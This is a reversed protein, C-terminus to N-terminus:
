GRLLLGRAIKVTSAGGADRATGAAQVILKRARRLRTRMAAKIRVTMRAAGAKPAKLTATGIVVPKSGRVKAMRLKRADAARITLTVTCTAARDVQCILAVGKRLALKLSQVATGTLGASLSGKPAPADGGGAGGATTGGGPGAPTDTTGSSTGGGTGAGPDTSGGTSGGGTSGGGGGGGPDTSPPAVIDVGVHEITSGGDADTVRVAADVHGANPYSATATPSSSPQTEFSGNGDLDWSYTLATGEPDSSGSANFTVTQGTQVPNPTATLQVVPAQNAVALQVTRTTTLGNGDTARVKVDRVGFSAYSLTQTPGADQLEFVGDGDLDWDWRVVSASSGATGFTVPTGRPVPNQSVSLTVAPAAAVHVLQTTQGSASPNGSDVVELRAIYDGAAPYAYTTKPSPLPQTDWTGDGDFDWRYTAIPGEHDSSASADFSVPQGAAVYGSATTPFTFSAVPPTNDVQITAVAVSFAGVDDTVKVRVVHLGSTTFHLSRTASTGTSEYTGNGDLDWAYSVISGAPDHTSASADLNVQDDISNLHSPASLAAVPAQDVFVSKTTQALTVGGADRLTLTVTYRGRASYQHTTTQGSGTATGDGFDWVYSAVKSGPDQSASADFSATAGATVPSPSVSFAAQAQADCVPPNIELSWGDLVGTNANNDGDNLLLKWQGQQDKGIFRSLESARYTSTFPANGLAINAGTPAFVTDALNAQGAPIQGYNLLTATTGDPGVLTLILERDNPHAISDIHVSLGKILGPSQLDVLSSAPVAGGQPINIPGDPTPFSLAPGPIGTGVQFGVNDTADGSMALTFGVSEGCQVTNPITAQYPQNNQKQDGPLMTPYTSYNGPVTVGPTTSRLTGALSALATSGDNSVTENLTITDGPAILSRGGPGTAETSVHNVSASAGGPAALGLLVGILAGARGIRKACLM